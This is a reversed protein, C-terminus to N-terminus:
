EKSGCKSVLEELLYDLRGDMIEDYDFVQGPLRDDKVTGRVENYTRVRENSRVMTIGDKRIASRMLPVLKEALRRFAIRKNIHQSREEECQASIGTVIHTVRVASDTKNRHQGGKGSGRYTDIRLDKRSVNYPWGM